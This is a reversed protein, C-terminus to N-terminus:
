NYRLCMFIYRIRGTKITQVTYGPSYEIGIRNRIIKEYGIIYVDFHIFILGIRFVFLGNKTKMKIM